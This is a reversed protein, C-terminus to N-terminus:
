ESESTENASKESRLDPEVISPTMNNDPEDIAMEVTAQTEQEFATKTEEVEVENRQDVDLREETLGAEILSKEEKM